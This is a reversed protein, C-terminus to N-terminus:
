IRSHVQLYTILLERVGIASSLPTKQDVEVISRLSARNNYARAAPFQFSSFCLFFLRRFRSGSFKVRLRPFSFFLVVRSVNGHSRFVLFLSSLPLLFFSFSFIMRTLTQYKLIDRKM